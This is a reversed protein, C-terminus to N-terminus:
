PQDQNDAYDEAHTDQKVTIHLLSCEYLGSLLPDVNIHRLMADLQQLQEEPVTERYKEDINDFADQFLVWTSSPVGQVVSLVVLVWISCPVCWVVFLVVWCGLVAHFVNYLLCFLEVCLYQMSCVTCCVSGGLVWTSFPVCQVVFVVMWCGLVTSCVTCCDSGSLM